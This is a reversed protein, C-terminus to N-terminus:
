EPRHFWLSPRDRFPIASSPYTRRAKGILVAGGESAFRRLRGAMVPDERQGKEFQVLAIEHQTAFDELAAVFGRTMPTMLAASPLAQDRPLSLVRNTGHQYQLGWMSMSSIRDIGEVPPRVQDKVIVAVSHAIMGRGRDPLNQREYANLGNM